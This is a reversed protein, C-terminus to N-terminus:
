ELCLAQLGELDKGTLDLRERAYEEFSSFAAIARLTTELYTEKVLLLGKVLDKMVPNGIAQEIRELERQIAEERHLNSLLYHHMVDDVSVGLALLIMSAMVGTRDKGASCHFLLPTRGWALIEKIIQGFMRPEEGMEQYIRIMFNALFDIEEASSEGRGPNCRLDDVFSLGFGEVQGMQEFPIPVPRHWREIKEPLHYPNMRVEESSRLDIVLGIGLPELVAALEDTSRDLNGSRFLFGSRVRRGGRGRYGGLDRLNDIKGAQIAGTM